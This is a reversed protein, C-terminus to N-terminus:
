DTGQRAPQEALGGSKARGRRRSLQMLLVGSLFGIGLCLLILWILSIHASFLVFQVTVQDNNEVIFAIVWAVGLLLGILLIWLRPQWEDLGDRDLRRPILGM